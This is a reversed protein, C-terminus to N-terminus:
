LKEAIRLVASRARPNRRTEQESPKIPKGIVRLVARSGSDMVPLRKPIRAPQSLSRIFRKVLRDELSHFSIVVLRGGSRLADVAKKLGIELDDLEQNIYIRIAQFSRTAPNKHKEWRPNAASVVSALDATTTFPQAERRAVIANAIRKAFREEGYTKLVYAIEDAAAHNLWQAATEGHDADMRMDLPGDDSFSFGREPDDLQPSSVGLDMLVGDIGDNVGESLLFQDLEAFSDQRIVFRSEVGMREVASLIAMPDKDMAYLRGTQGLQKMIGQSHGGRGFTADLYRGEDKINLAAM